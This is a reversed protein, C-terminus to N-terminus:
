LFPLTIASKCTEAAISSGFVLVDVTFEMLSVSIWDSEPFEIVKSPIVMPFIM